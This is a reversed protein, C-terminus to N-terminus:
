CRYASARGIGLAKAIATTNATMKRTQTVTALRDINCVDAIRRWLRKRFEEALHECRKLTPCEDDGAIIM